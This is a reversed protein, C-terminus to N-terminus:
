QKINCTQQDSQQEDYDSMNLLQCVLTRIWLPSFNRVGGLTHWRNLTIKHIQCMHGEWTAIERKCEKLM